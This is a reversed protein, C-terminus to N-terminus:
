YVVKLLFFIFLSLFILIYLIFLSISFTSVLSIERFRSKQSAIEGSRNLIGRAYILGSVRSSHGAQLDVIDETYDHDEDNVDHDFDDSDFQIEKKLFKRAIGIALHRYQSPNIAIGLGIQTERKLIRRLDDSTMEIARTKTLSIKQFLYSSFIRHPKQDEYIRQLFPVILWIYYVLLEGIERPLYRHIIKPSGSISYGKHYYTVFCILGNEYFINRIGTKITNSYQLSLLEPGRAPQGGSIHVLILLKELFLTISDFFTEIRKKNWQFESSPIQFRRLLDEHQSLRSFLWDQPRPIGLNTQPNNLFNSYPSNDLPNEYIKEWPILPIRRSKTISRFLIEDFLIARTSYLLGHIFGRFNSMSFSISSYFITEKNWDIQGISTSNRAITLGYARLDLIYQIPSHSGRIMFRNVLTTLRDLPKQGLDQGSSNPSDSDSELDNESDNETPFPRASSEYSYRIILFRSIKLISSLKSPFSDVGHWGKEKVGLLALGVLFPTNNENSDIKQDILSLCFDLLSKQLNSLRYFNTVKKGRIRSQSKSISSDSDDNAESLSKDPDIDQNPGQPTKQYPPLSNEFDEWTSFRSLRRYLRDFYVKQSSTFHYEPGSTGILDPDDQTRIFFSLIQKWSQSYNSIRGLDQYQRLPRGRYQDKETRIAEFRAFSGITEIISQSYQALSDFSNWLIRM